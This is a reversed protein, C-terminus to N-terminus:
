SGRPREQDRLANGTWVQGYTVFFFADDGPSTGAKAKQIKIISSRDRDSLVLEVPYGGSIKGAGGVYASTDVGLAAAATPAYAPQSLDPPIISVVFTDTTSEGSAEVSIYNCAFDNGGSDVLTISSATADTFPGVVMTYPRFQERM